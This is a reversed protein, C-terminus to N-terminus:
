HSFPPKALSEFDSTSYGFCQEDAVIDLYLLSFFVISQLDVKQVVANKYNVTTTIIYSLQVLTSCIYPQISM